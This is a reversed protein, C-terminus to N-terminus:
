QWQCRNVNRDQWYCWNCGRSGKYLSCNLFFNNLHFVLLFVVDSHFQLLDYPLIGRCIVTPHYSKEIFAEAVHLMEGATPIFFILSLILCFIHQELFLHVNSKLYLIWLLVDCWRTTSLLKLLLTMLYITCVLFLLLHLGMVWKKTRRAAWSLWRSCDFCLSSFCILFFSCHSSLLFTWAFPFIHFRLQLTLLMLNVCFLMGM